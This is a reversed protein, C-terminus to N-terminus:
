GTFPDGWLEYMPEYMPESIRPRGLEIKQTRREEEERDQQQEAQKMIQIEDEWSMSLVLNELKAM